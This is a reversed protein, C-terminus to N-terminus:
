PLIIPSRRRVKDILDVINFGGARDPNIGNQKLFNGVATDYAGRAETFAMEAKQCEIFKAKLETLKIEFEDDKM